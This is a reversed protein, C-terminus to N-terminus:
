DSRQADDNVVVRIPAMKINITGPQAAREARIALREFAAEWFEAIEDRIKLADPDPSPDPLPM